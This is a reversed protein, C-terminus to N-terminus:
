IKSVYQTIRIVQKDFQNSMEGTVLLKNFDKLVLIQYNDDDEEPLADFWELISYQDSQEGNTPLEINPNNVNLNGTIDWECMKWQTNTKRRECIRELASMIREEEHSCIYILPRNSRIQWDIERLCQRHQSIYQSLDGITQTSDEM